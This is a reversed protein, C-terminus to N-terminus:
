DLGYSSTTHIAVSHFRICKANQRLAFQFIFYFTISTQTKDYPLICSLLTFHLLLKHKTMLCPSIYRLSIYYFNTNQWLTPNFIVFYFTISTQTKDDPLTFFLLTFHLLLKHKTMLCPSICCLSIYYCNTNQWLTPHFIVFYFTVSTQTKDYPLTFYLLLKCKAMLNLHPIVFHFTLFKWREDTLLNWNSSRRHIFQQKRRRRRRRRQRRKKRKWMIM